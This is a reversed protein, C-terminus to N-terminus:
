GIAAELRAAGPPTAPPTLKWHAWVTKGPGPTLPTVGHDHTLATVITLGRGHLAEPGLDLHRVKGPSHDTVEVTLAETTAQMALTIPPDGYNVANALLEDVTLIVDDQLDHLGWDTLLRATTARARPIMALHHPLNWRVTRIGDPTEPM